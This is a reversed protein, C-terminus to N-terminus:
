RTQGQAEAFFDSGRWKLGFHSRHSSLVRGVEVLWKKPIQFRWWSYRENASLLFVFCHYHHVGLRKKGWGVSIWTHRWEQTTFLIGMWIGNLFDTRDFSLGQVLGRLIKRSIMSHSVTHVLNWKQKQHLYDFQPYQNPIKKKRGSCSSKKGTLIFLISPESFEWLGNQFVQLGSFSQSPIRTVLSIAAPTGAGFPSCIM